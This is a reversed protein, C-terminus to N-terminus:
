QPTDTASAAGAEMAVQEKHLEKQESYWEGLGEMALIEEDTLPIRTLSDGGCMKYVESRGDFFDASVVGTDSIRLQVCGTYDKVTDVERNHTNGDYAWEERVILVKYM